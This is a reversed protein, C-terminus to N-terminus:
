LLYNNVWSLRWQTVNYNVVKDPTKVISIGNGYNETRQIVPIYTDNIMTTYMKKM